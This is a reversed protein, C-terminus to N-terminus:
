LDIILSIDVNFVAKDYNIEMLGNYKEVLNKINFLGIGSNINDNKRSLITNGKKNVIGDFSNKSKIILINDKIIMELNIFNDKCYNRNIAEIANDILNSIIITIDLSNINLKNPVKINFNYKINNQKLEDIKFSLISDIILNETFNLMEIKEINDCINNVYEKLEDIKYLDLLSKIVNIHNKYDHKVSKATKNFNSITLLHKKYYKNQKEIITNKLKYDQYKIVRSYVCLSSVSICIIIVLSLSFLLNHKNMEIIDLINCIICMISILIIYLNMYMIKNIKLILKVIFYILILLIECFIILYLDIHRSFSFFNDLSTNFARYLIVEPLMLLSITFISCSIRIIFPIKYNYMIIFISIMNIILTLNPINIFIYNITNFLYYIIYSIIEIYKNKADKEIFIHILKYIIIFNIANCLTYIINYM